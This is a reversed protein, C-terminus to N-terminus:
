NLPGLYDIYRVSWGPFTSCDAMGDNNSDNYYMFITKGTAQASLLAAYWNGCATVPVGFEVIDANCIAVWNWSGAAGSTVNASVYVRGNRDTSVMTPKIRCERVTAQAITPLAILGVLAARGLLSRVMM